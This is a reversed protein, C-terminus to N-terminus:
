SCKYSCGVFAMRYVNRLTGEASNNMYYEKDVIDGGFTIYKMDYEYDYVINSSEDLKYEYVPNGQEDLVNSTMINSTMITINSTNSDINSSDYVNQINSTNWVIYEEQKIVEIPIWKPNFDCDMTIKAVTYTHLFDDDQKMGIGAIPSTTIYDGNELVGNYDSVWISGEGCGNVILRHDGNDIDMCSVFHGTAYERVANSTDEYRSIVGWCSKDYAKSTLVIIPLADDMIINEKISDIHYKSNLNKYKGTSKVIYGKYDQSYLKKDDTINRHQGTHNTYGGNGQYSMRSKVGGTFSSSSYAYILDFEGGMNTTRVEWYKTASISAIKANQTSMTGSVTLDGSSNVQIGNTTSGNSAIYFNGNTLVGGDWYNGSQIGGARGYRIIANGGVSQPVIHPSQFMMNRMTTYKTGAQDSATTLGDGWLSTPTIDFNQWGGQASPFYIWFRDNTEYSMVNTTGKYWRHSTGAPVGYWLTSSTIGLAYPCSEGTGKWLVIRTGNNGGYVGNAPLGVATTDVCCKGQIHLNTEPNTTGIGVNGSNRVVFLTKDYSTTSTSSRTNITFSSTGAIKTRTADGANDGSGGQNLYISLGWYSSIYNDGGFVSSINGVTGNIINQEITSLTDNIGSISVGVGKIIGGVDLKTIPNTTGIGVNGDSRMSMVNVDDYSAHSLTIDLRSRSNVANNEWRCLKLSAKAGFAQANTGQRCLHLVSKPDNLITTSTATPNTITLPAESHNFNNRDVVIPNITLKSSISANTGIGVNGLSYHIDNTNVTTWQSTGGGTSIATGNQRLTGTFNIDGQVHLRYNPVVATGIGVNGGIYSSPPYYYDASYGGQLNAQQNTETWLATFLNGNRYFSGNTLNISGNVNMKYSALNTSTGIGINGTNNNFIDNGSTTWVSNLTNTNFTLGTGISIEDVQNATTCGLLRSATITSKGTGGKNVPLITFSNEKGNILGRLINSEARVYNSTDVFSQSLNTIDAITHSHSSPAFTTPKNTIDNWLHTHGIDTKGNILGRLINSEARTYNSSNIFEQSLNTIDAITHSHTIPARTAIQTNTYTRLINSEARVYNSTDVFSQSLNTIDAITHTHSFDTIDSKTLYRVDCITDEDNNKFYVFGTNGSNNLLNSTSCLPVIDANPDEEPVTFSRRNDAKYLIGNIYLVSCNISGVCDLNYLPEDKGIGVFGTNKKIVISAKGLIGNEYRVPGIAIDGDNLILARNASNDLRITLGNLLDTGTNENTLRIEPGRQYNPNNAPEVHHIHLNGKPFYTGIGVNPTRQNPNDKALIANKGLVLQPETHELAWQIPDIAVQPEYNFTYLGNQTLNGLVDLSTNIKVKGMEIKIFPYNNIGIAMEETGGSMLYTKKDQVNLALRLGTQIKSTNQSDTNKSNILLGILNNTETASGQKQSYIHLPFAPTNTGIGIHSYSSNPNEVIYTKKGVINTNITSLLDEHIWPNIKIRNNVDTM